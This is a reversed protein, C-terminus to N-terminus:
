KRERKRRERIRPPCWSGMRTGSRSRSARDRRSISRDEAAQRHRQLTLIYVCFDCLDSNVREM